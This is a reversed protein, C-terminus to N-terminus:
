KMNKQLKEEQKVSLNVIGCGFFISKLLYTNFYLLMVDPEMVTQKLKYMALNM